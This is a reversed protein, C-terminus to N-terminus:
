GVYLKKYDSYYVDYGTATQYWNKALAVENENNGAWLVISAHHKLRWVNEEVEQVRLM